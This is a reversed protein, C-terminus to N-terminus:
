VLCFGPGCVANAPRFVVYEVEVGSAVGPRVFGLHPVALVGDQDWLAPLSPRVAVPIRMSASAESVKKTASATLREGERGLPALCVSRGETGEAGEGDRLVIAFRGDWHLRDGGRVPVPRPLNRAERCLLLGGRWPAIRCGALTAATDGSVLRELLSAVARRRPGYSEGGVSRLLRALVRRAVEPPQRELAEPDLVAYGAPHLFATTAMACAVATELTLRLKGMARSVAVVRQPSVGGLILDPWAQRLRVRAHVPNRNSPDELWPQGRDELFRVLAEPTTTLLPRLLRVAPTEVVAAMGAAGEVGSARGLRLLVTEAQDVLHHGLLLHLVGAERCWDELLRYRAARAAAQLGSTPTPGTRTLIRHEVGRAALWEGVHLAELTSEARLRHDVTLATVHGRRERIWDATALCLAMSDAGGSVAVAVHPRTEFPGVRDM